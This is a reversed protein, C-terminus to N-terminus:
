GPVEADVGPAHHDAVSRHRVHHGDFPRAHGPPGDQLPVLVVARGDPQDLEVQQAQAHEGGQVVGDVERGLVFVELHVEGTQVEGVGPDVVHQAAAVRHAH